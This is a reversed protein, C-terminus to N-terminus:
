TGDKKHQRNQRHLADLIGEKWFERPEKSALGPYTRKMISLVQDAVPDFFAWGGDHPELVNWHSLPVDILLKVMGHNSELSFIASDEPLGRKRCRHWSNPDLLLQCLLELDDAILKRPETIEIWRHQERLEDPTEPDLLTCMGSNVNRLRKITEQTLFEKIDPM